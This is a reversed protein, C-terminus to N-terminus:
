SAVRIRPDLASYILDAIINFIIATIGTVLFVGMMVNVDDIRLSNVFLAGMGERGFITETVVAGGILAGIDLTIITTVPILANRFAHRMIVTRETLGKARATRIYDQNLVDLLSARTYRSYSAVSILVLALTPLLIHTFNDLGTVWFDAVLDPSAAGVTAIPRGNTYDSTAYVNWSHMFRDIVILFGMLAATIAGTRVSLWRDVGGFLYGILGGVIIAVIGLIAILWGTAISTLLTYQLPYYLALGILVVVFATNRSKKNSWGTTLVTVLYAIGAGLIAIVVIGLSPNNFWKTIAIFTFAVATAVTAVVFVTLRRKGNGGSIGMWIIGALLSVVIITAPAIVPDQLFNNFGIAVYQKLIVAFFFTPLSFFLFAAFTAVYDYTSYQRLATTIGVLVGVITAVVLAATVLQLTSWMADGVLATVPQGAISSGLSFHGVFGQLLDGLWTFYRLFPSIDLHLLEVRAAILETRNRGRTQLLDLLPNSSYCALVYVVYSAVFLVVLSALLRRALFTVM